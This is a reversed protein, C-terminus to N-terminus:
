GTAPSSAMITAPMPKRRPVEASSISRATRSASWQKSRDASRSSAIAVSASFASSGPGGSAARRRATGNTAQVAASRAATVSRSRAGEFRTSSAFPTGDIASAEASTTAPRLPWSSPLRMAVARAVQAMALPSPRHCHMEYTGPRAGDIQYRHAPAVQDTATRDAEIGARQHRLLEELVARRARADDVGRRQRQVLDDFLAPAGGLLAAVHRPQM